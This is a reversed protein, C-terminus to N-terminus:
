CMLTLSSTGQEPPDCLECLIKFPKLLIDELRGKVSHETKEVARLVTLWQDGLHAFRNCESPAYWREEGTEKRLKKAKEALIKPAYTEPITFIIILLCCGAFMTTVWFM